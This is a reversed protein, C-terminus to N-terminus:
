CCRLCGLPSSLVSMEKAWVEESRPLASSGAFSYRWCCWEDPVELAVQRVSLAVLFSVQIRSHVISRDGKSDGKCVAELWSLEELIWEVTLEGPPIWCRCEDEREGGGGM